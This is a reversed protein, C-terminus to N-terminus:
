SNPLSGKTTLQGLDLVPIIDTQLIANWYLQLQILKIVKLRRDVTYFIYNKRWCVDKWIVILKTLAVSKKESNSYVTNNKGRTMKAM